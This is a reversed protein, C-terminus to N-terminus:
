SRREFGREAFLSTYQVDETRENRGSSASNYSLKSALAATIGFRHASRRLCENQLWIALFLRLNMQRKHCVYLCGSSVLFDSM